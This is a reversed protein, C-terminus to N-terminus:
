IFKNIDKITVPKSFDFEELPQQTVEENIVIDEKKKKGTYVAPIIRYMENTGHKKLVPYKSIFMATPPKGKYPKRLEMIYQTKDKDNQVGALLKATEETAGAHIIFSNITGLIAQVFHMGSTMAIQNIDLISFITQCGGSRGKEILDKILISSELTGFEDVGIVLKPSYRKRMSRDMIDQFIFSSLSNALAKNASVFSFMICYQSDENFSFHTKSEDFMEIAASSVIIDLQKLLTQYGDRMNSDPKFSPAFKQLGIIYNCTENNEERYEEYAHVLHQILLQTSTRYHEDAGGTDWRRTNMLAEVKGTENLNVLPDYYFNCRDSSFEYFPINRMDCFEKLDDIIDKEGKYDFMAAPKGEDLTQKILSLMTRTKGSGTSGTIMMSGSLIGDTVSVTANNYKLESEDLPLVNGIKFSDKKNPHLMRLSYIRKDFDLPEIVYLKLALLLATLPIAAFSWWSRFILASLIMLVVMLPTTIRKYFIVCLIFVIISLM